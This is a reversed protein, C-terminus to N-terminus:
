YGRSVGDIVPPLGEKTSEMNVEPLSSHVEVRPSAEQSNSARRGGGGSPGKQASGLTSIPATSHSHRLSLFNADRGRM